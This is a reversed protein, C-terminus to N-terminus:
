QIGEGYTGDPIDVRLTASRGDPAVTAAKLVGQMGPNVPITKGIQGEFALPGFAAPTVAHDGLMVSAECPFITFEIESV